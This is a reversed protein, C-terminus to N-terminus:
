SPETVGRPKELAFFVPRERTRRALPSIGPRQKDNYHRLAPASGTQSSTYCFHTHVTKTQPQDDIRQGTDAARGRELAAVPHGRQSEGPAGFRMRRVTRPDGQLLQQRQALAQCEQGEGARHARLQQLVHTEAVLHEAFDFARLARRLVGTMCHLSQLIGAHRQDEEGTAVPRRPIDGSDRPLLLRYQADGGPHLNM